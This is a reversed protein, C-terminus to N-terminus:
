LHNYHTILLYIRALMLEEKNCTLYGKKLLLTCPFLPLMIQSKHTKTSPSPSLSKNLNGYVKNLPIDDMDSSTSSSSSLSAPSSRTDSSTSSEIYVIEATSHLSDTNGEPAKSAVAESCGAEVQAVETADVMDDAVAMQQLNETLELGLQAAEVTSERALVETPIKIEKALQLAKEM